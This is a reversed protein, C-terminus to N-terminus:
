SKKLNVNIKHVLADIYGMDTESPYGEIFRARRAEYFLCSRLLKLEDSLFQNEVWDKIAQNALDVLNDPYAAYGDFEHAFVSYESWRDPTSSYPLVFVEPTRDSTTKSSNIPNNLQRGKAIDSINSRLFSMKFPM